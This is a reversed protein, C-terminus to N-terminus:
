RREFRINNLTQTHSVIIFRRFPQFIFTIKPPAIKGNVPTGMSSVLLKTQSYFKCVALYCRRVVFGFPVSPFVSPFVFHRWFLLFYIIRNRSSKGEWEGGIKTPRKVCKVRLWTVIAAIILQSSELANQARCQVKNAARKQQFNIIRGTKQVNWSWQGHTLAFKDIIQLLEVISEFRFTHLSSSASSEVISVCYVAKM